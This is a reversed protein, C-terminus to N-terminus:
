SFVAKNISPPTRLFDPIGISDLWMYLQKYTAGISPEIGRLNPFDSRVRRKWFYDDECIAAITSNTPCLKLVNYIRRVKLLIEILLEYPIGEM